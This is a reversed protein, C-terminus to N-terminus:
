TVASATTGNARAAMGSGTACASVDGSFGYGELLALTEELYGQTPNAYRSYTWSPTLYALAAELHDANEYYQATSLYAPEIISGQNELAAELDYLGHVAITDFKLKRMRARRAALNENIAQGRRVFGQVGPSRNAESM